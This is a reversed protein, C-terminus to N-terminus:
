SSATCVTELGSFEVRVESTPPVLHLAGPTSCIVFAGARLLAEEKNGESKLTKLLWSITAVPGLMNGVKLESLTVQEIKKKALSVTMLEDLSIEGIFCRKTNASHVVGAHICNTGILELGRRGLDDEKPGDMGAMHIEIIPELEVEWESVDDSEASLLKIGLEGEIALRRHDIVTGTKYSESDWLYGHVSEKLGMIGELNERVGKSTYGVKFGIVKEGRAERVSRLARQLKYAEEISNPGRGESFVRRICREDLDVQLEQALALFSM